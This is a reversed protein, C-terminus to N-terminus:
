RPALLLTPVAALLLLVCWVPGTNAHSLLALILVSVGWLVAVERHPPM